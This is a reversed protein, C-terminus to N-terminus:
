APPQDAQGPVPSILAPQRSRVQQLRQQVRGGAIRARSHSTPQQQRLQVAPQRTGKDGLRSAAAFVAVKLPPQSAGTQPRTVHSLPPLKHGCIPILYPKKIAQVGLDETALGAEWIRLQQGAEWTDCSLRRNKSGAARPRGTWLPAGTPPRDPSEPLRRVRPQQRSRQCPHLEQQPLQKGAQEEAERLPPLRNVQILRRSSFSESRERRGIARCRRPLQDFGLRPRGSGSNELKGASKRNRCGRFRCAKSLPSIGALRTATELGSALSSVDMAPRLLFDSPSLEMIENSRSGDWDDENRLSDAAAQADMNTSLQVGLIKGASQTPLAGNAGFNLLREVPVIAMLDSSNPCSKEVLIVFLQSNPRDQMWSTTPRWASDLTGSEIRPRWYGNRNPQSPHLGYWM